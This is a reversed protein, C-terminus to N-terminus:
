GFTRYINSLAWRNKLKYVSCQLICAIGKKSTNKLDSEFALSAEKKNYKKFDEPDSNKLVLHM